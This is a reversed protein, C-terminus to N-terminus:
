PWPLNRELEEGLDRARRRGEEEIRERPDGAPGGPLDRLPDPLRRGLESELYANVLVRATEAVNAISVSPSQALGGIRLSVPISQEVAFANAVLLSAAEPTLNLTGTLQLRRDLGIRGRLALPGYPTNARLPEVLEIAGPVFRLTAEIDGLPQEEPLIESRAGLLKTLGPIEVAQALGGRIHSVLNIPEFVAGEIAASITGRLSQEIAERDIGRGSLDIEASAVGQLLDPAGAIEELMTGLELGEIEGKATFPQDREFPAFSSGAGSFRGGFASVSLTRAHVRGLVIELEARLDRYPVIKAQGGEVTLAIRGNARSLAGPESPEKPAREAPQREPPLFDDVDLHTSRLEAELLPEKLNEVALSGSVDSTGATAEFSPVQLKMTEPRGVVGRADLEGGIRLDPPVAAPQVRPVLSLVSALAFPAAQMSFDFSRENERQRVSFRGRGTLEGVRLEFTSALRDERQEATAHVRFPRGRPKDLLDRYRAELAAFDASLRLDRGGERPVIDLEAEGGGRFRAQPAGVDLQSIAIRAQGAPAETTGRLEADLALEGRGAAEVEPLLQLLGRADPSETTASLNLLPAEDRLNEITGHVVLRWQSIELAMRELSVADDRVEGVASVLLPIGGPKEFRRPVALSARTLDLRADFRQREGNTADAELSFPGRLVIGTVDDLHPYHSHLTDFDLQHSRVRFDDFRPAHSLGLLKGSSELSMEGVSVHLKRIDLDWADTDATVDLEVRGDFPRGGAFRAGRLDVVGEASAIGSGGPALAGLELSLDALVAARELALGEVMPAVFPALPALEIRESRVDLTRLPPPRQPEDGEAEPARGFTATLQLNKQPEFVAASLRGSFPGRASADRVVLDLNGIEALPQQGSADILRVTANEVRGDAIRLARLRPDVEHEDPDRELRRLIHQWNNSGDEFRVVNIVTGELVVEAIVPRRGLSALTALVGVRLRGREVFLAARNAEEPRQPDSGIFVDRVELRPRPFLNVDVVGIHVPRGLQTELDAIFADKSELLRREVRSAGIALIAVAALVVGLVILWRIWGDAKRRV